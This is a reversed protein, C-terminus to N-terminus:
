KNSNLYKKLDVLSHKIFDEEDEDTTLVYNLFNVTRALSLIEIDRENIQENPNVNHYGKLVWKKVNEYGFKENSEYYSLLIVIDHVPNGLIVDEFDFLAIQQNHVKINWPNLDGHLLQANKPNYIHKLKENFLPIATDMLEKFEKTVIHNHKKLHYVPKDKRFYFVNDWKRPQLTSSFSINKTILHLEAIIEGLKVFLSESENDKFEDGKLWKSLVLRNTSDSTTNKVLTLGSNQINKVLEPVTITGKKTIAELVLIELINDDINSADEYIKFAYEQSSKDVLKYVVSANQSFLEKSIFTNSYQKFAFSVIADYKKKKM